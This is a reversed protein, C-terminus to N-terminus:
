YTHVVTTRGFDMTRKHLDLSHVRARGGELKELWTFRIKKGVSIPSPISHVTFEKFTQPSSLLLFFFLKEFPTVSALPFGLEESEIKCHVVLVVKWRTLGVTPLPRRARWALFDFLNGEIEGRDSGGCLNVEGRRTREESSYAQGFEFM